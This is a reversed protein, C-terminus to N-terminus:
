EELFLKAVQQTKQSSYTLQLWTLEIDLVQTTFGNKDRKAITSYWWNNDAVQVQTPLNILISSKPSETIYYRTEKLKKNVTQIKPHDPTIHKKKLYAAYMKNTKYSYESWEYSVKVKLGSPDLIVECTSVGYPLTYLIYVMRELTDTKHNEIIIIPPKEDFVHDLHDSSPPTAVDRIEEDEMDDEDVEDM